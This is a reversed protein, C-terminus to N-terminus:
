IRDIKCKVEIAINILKTLEERFKVTNEIISRSVKITAMGENLVIVNYGKAKLIEKVKQELKNTLKEDTDDLDQIRKILFDFYIHENSFNLSEDFYEYIGCLPTDEYNEKGNWEPKMM